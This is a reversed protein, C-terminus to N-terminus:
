QINLECNRRHNNLEREHRKRRLMVIRRRQKFTPPPRPRLTKLRRQRAVIVLHNRYFLSVDEDSYGLMMGRLLTTYEKRRTAVEYFAQYHARAEATKDKRMVYYGNERTVLMHRHKFRELHDLHHWEPMGILRRGDVIDQLWQEDSVGIDFPMLRGRPALTQYNDLIHDLRREYEKEDMKAFVNYMWYVVIM